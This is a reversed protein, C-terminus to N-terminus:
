AAAGPPERRRQRPSVGTGRADLRSPGRSGAGPRRCPEGQHARCRWVPPPRRAGDGSSTADARRDGRRRVRASGGGTGPANVTVLLEVGAAAVMKGLRQHEAASHPGLEAMPGLVAFRRGAGLSALADVAAAMSTPNANYSDNLVLLGAPSRRLDMRLPSGVAGALGTVADPLSVGVVGAVAIPSPPTAPRTPAGSRSRRCTPPAGPRTSTSPRASTTTSGCPASASTPAPRPGPRSCPPAPGRRLGPTM